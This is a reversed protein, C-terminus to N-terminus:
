LVPQQGEGPSLSSCQWLTPAAACVVQVTLGGLFLPILTLPFICVNSLRDPKKFHAVKLGEGCEGGDGSGRM